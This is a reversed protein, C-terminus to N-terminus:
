RFLMSSGEIMIDNSGIDLSVISDCRMIGKLLNALGSNGLNNKGLDVHAFSHMEVRGDEDRSAIKTSIIQGLVSAAEPGM